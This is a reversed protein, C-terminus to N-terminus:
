WLKLPQKTKAGFCTCYGLLAYSNPFSNGSLFKGTSHSNSTATSGLIGVLWVFNQASEPRECTALEAFCHVPRNFLNMSLNELLWIRNVRQYWLSKRVKFALCRFNEMIKGLGRLTIWLWHIRERSELRSKKEATAPRPRHSRYSSHNNSFIWIKLTWHKNRDHAFDVDRADRADNRRRTSDETEGHRWDVNWWGTGGLTEKGPKFFMHSHSATHWFGDFGKQECCFISPMEWLYICIYQRIM